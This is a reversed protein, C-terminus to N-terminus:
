PQIAITHCSFFSPMMVIPVCPNVQISLVTYVPGWRNCAYVHRVIYIAISLEDANGHPHICFMQTCPCVLKSLMCQFLCKRFRPFICLSPFLLIFVIDCVRVPRRLASVPSFFPAPSGVLNEFFLPTYPLCFFFVSERGTLHMILFRLRAYNGQLSMAGGWLDLLGAALFHVVYRDEVCAVIAKLNCGDFLAVVVGFTM